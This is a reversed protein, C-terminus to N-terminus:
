AGPHAVPDESDRLVVLAVVAAAVRVTKGAGFDRQRTADDAHRVGVLGHGRDARVFLGHAGGSSSAFKDGTGACMKIRLHDMGEQPNRHRPHSPAVPCDGGRRFQGDDSPEASQEGLGTRAGGAENRGSSESGEDADRCEGPCRADQGGGRSGM